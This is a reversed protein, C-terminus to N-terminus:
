ATVVPPAPRSRRRRRAHLLLALVLLALGIVIAAADGALKAPAHHVADIVAPVPGGFHAAASLHAPGPAATTHLKVLTGAEDLAGIPNILGFGVTTNYGGAPHYSASEALARAVLAPSIQPYVAKILAVTGAAWAITSYNGWATYPESGPGTATMVNDPVTVLISDNVPSPVPKAPVPLGKLATGSFNIVGPLSDPYMPQDPTSGFRMDAGLVVVNKSIAYAVAEDLASTDSYGSVNTVIVSAHHSVAYRIAKAENDQWTPNKTYKDGRAGAGYDV